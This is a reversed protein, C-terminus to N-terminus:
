GTVEVDVYWRAREDFFWRILEVPNFISPTTVPKMVLWPLPTKLRPDIPTMGYHTSFRIKDM